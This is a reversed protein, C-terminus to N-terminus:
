TANREVQKLMRRYLVADAVWSRRGRREAVKRPEGGSNDFIMVHHALPSYVEFFNALARGFRRKVVDAPIDHGRSEVRGKIRRLALRYDPIWLFYIQIRFGMRRMRAMMSAYTRGSLTTEIAFSARKRTLEAIRELVLRGASVAAKEPDFPSLGKAILDANIFDVKGVYSPLFETAFTTKGAGNSGAVVYLIPHKKM